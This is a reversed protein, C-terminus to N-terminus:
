KTMMRVYITHEGGRKWITNESERYFNLGQENGMFFFSPATSQSCGCRLLEFGVYVRNNPLSVTEWNLDFEVLGYKLTVPIIYEKKLVENEPLSLGSLAVDRLHLKLWCTDYNHNIKVQVQGVQIKKRPLDFVFGIEGGENETKWERYYGFRKHDGKLSAFVKVQELTESAQSLKIKKNELLDRVLIKKSAYGIATVLISDNLRSQKRIVFSFKGLSDTMTADGKDPTVSAYSVPSGTADDEVFGNITQQASVAFSTFISLILLGYFRKM